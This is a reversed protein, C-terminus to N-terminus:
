VGVAVAERDTAEFLELTPMAVLPAVLLYPFTGRRDRMVTLADNYFSRALAIRHETDRLGDALREYQEDAHLRPYAESLALLQRADAHAVADHAQAAELEDVSPLSGRSRALALTHLLSGEHDVYGRVVRALNTVLDYRRQLQVEISSWAREAQNRVIVLRNYARLLWSALLGAVFVAAGALAVGGQGDPDLELSTDGFPDRRGVPLAAVIVAALGLLLALWAWAGLRLAIRHESDDSVVFEEAEGAVELAAGTADARVPGLVYVRSRDPLRCELQRWKRGRGPVPLRHQEIGHFEAGAPDVRIRGTGDELVFPRRHEAADVTVWSSNKGRKRHEQLKWSYWVCSVGSAPAPVPELAIATGTFECTGVTAAAVKSTPTDVVRWARARLKVGLVFWLAAAIWLLTRPVARGNISLKEVLFIGAAVLLPALAAAHHFRLRM